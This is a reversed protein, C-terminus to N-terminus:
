QKARRGVAGTGQQITVPRGEIETCSEIGGLPATEDLLLGIRDGMGITYGGHSIVRSLWEMRFTEPAQKLGLQPINEPRFSEEPKSGPRIKNAAEVKRARFELAGRGALPPCSAIALCAFLFHRCTGLLLPLLREAVPPLSDRQHRNIHCGGVELRLEIGAQQLVVFHSGAGLAPLMQGIRKWRPGSVFM